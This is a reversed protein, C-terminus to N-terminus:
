KLPFLGIFWIVSRVLLFISVLIGLIWVFKSTWSTKFILHEISLKNITKQQKRLISEEKEIRKQKKANKDYKLKYLAM